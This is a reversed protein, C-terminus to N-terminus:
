DCNQASIGHKCLTRPAPIGGNILVYKYPIKNGIKQVTQHNSLANIWREVQQRRLGVIESVERITRPKHLAYVVLLLVEILNERTKIM